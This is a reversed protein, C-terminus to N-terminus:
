GNFERYQFYDFDAFASNTLPDQCCMGIFVGTFGGSAREDSLKTLDLKKHLVTWNSDDLSYLFRLKGYHVDARLYVKGPDVLTEKILNHHFKGNDNFMIGLYDQGLENIGKYLYYFMDANYFVTLGAHQHEEDPNFAMSVKASARFSQLRRAILSQKYYSQLINRGYLRLHSPRAELSCIEKLYDARLWQYDIRLETQDFDDKDAAKPWTVEELEPIEVSELPSNDPGDHWLWDDEKWMMKQIATERGLTCRGTLINDGGIPRGCLHVLYTEGTATEVLDGHGARKLESDKKNATMIPNAPHVEYPGLISKSRAFTVAHQYSTGGEATLLYYYGNRKYLHPGETLGLDTGDFIKHVPGLLKGQNHDYEQMIIGKFMFPDIGKSKARKKMRLFNAGAIAKSYRFSVVSHWLSHDYEMSLFWKKGDEDHFLSADFGRSHMYIPESWDGEIDQTTVLYNDPTGNDKVDTYILYFTGDQYSLCPAWIGCSPFEGLMNLQSDRRLPRTLLRWNVLDKSHHIQVGPYWQFTSTAIYYDEGVRIISPDPNFGKLIPNKAKAM